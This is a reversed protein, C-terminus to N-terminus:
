KNGGDLRKILIHTIQKLVSPYKFSLLDLDTDKLVFYESVKTARVTANRPEHTLFAMEGPEIRYSVGGLAEHGSTYRKHVNDFHIM